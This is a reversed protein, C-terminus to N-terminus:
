FPCQYAYMGMYTHIGPFVNNKKERTNGDFM